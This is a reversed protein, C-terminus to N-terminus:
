RPHMFVIRSDKNFYIACTAWEGYDEEDVQIIEEAQIKECIKEYFEVDDDSLKNVCQKNHELFDFYTTFGCNPKHSLMRDFSFEFINETIFEFLKRKSKNTAITSM